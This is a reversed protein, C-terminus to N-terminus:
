AKVRSILGSNQLEDIAITRHFENMFSSGRKVRRVARSSLRGEKAYKALTRVAFGCLKSFETPRLWQKGSATSAGLKLQKIEHRIDQLEGLIIFALNREIVLHDDNPRRIIRRDNM